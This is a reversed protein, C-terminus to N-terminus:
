GADSGSARPDAAGREHLGLMAAFVRPDWRGISTEESLLGVADDIELRHRYPRESTLADLADALGLIRAPWPIGDGVLGDPYGSGDFREHHYRIVDLVPEASRL